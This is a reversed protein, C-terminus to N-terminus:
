KPVRNKIHKVLIRGISKRNINVIEAIARSTLRRVEQIIIFIDELNGNTLSTTPGGSHDDDEVDKRRSSFRKFM